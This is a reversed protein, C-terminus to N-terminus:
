KTFYSDRGQQRKCLIFCHNYLHILILLIIGDEDNEGKTRELLGGEQADQGETHLESVEVQAATHPHSHILALVFTAHVQLYIFRHCYSNSECCMGNQPLNIRIQDTWKKAKM